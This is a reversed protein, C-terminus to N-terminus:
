DNEEEKEINEKEKSLFTIFEEVKQYVDVLEENALDKIKTNDM